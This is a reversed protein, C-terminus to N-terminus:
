YLFYKKKGFSSAFMAVLCAGMLMGSLLIDQQHTISYGVLRDFTADLLEILQLETDPLPLEGITEVVEQWLFRDGRLGWQRPKNEFLIVIKTEATQRDDKQTFHQTM